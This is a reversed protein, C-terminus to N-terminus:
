PSVVVLRDNVTPTVASATYTSDGNTNEADEMCDTVAACPRAQGAFARGPTIILARNNNNPPPMNNVTLMDGSAACASSVPKACKSAVAYFLVHHWNNSLFWAPMAAGNGLWNTSSGLSCSATFYQPIRGSHQNDTCAYSSDSYANAFPFFNNATYFAQLVTRAERAVRM